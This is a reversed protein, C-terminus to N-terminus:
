EPMRLIFTRDNWTLTVERPQIRSVTWGQVMQGVTLMNNAIMAVPEHNGVLVSQLTLGNAAALAEALGTPPAPEPPEIAEPEKPKTCVAMPPAKFVFPNGTIRELPIQRRQAEYYFADTISLGAAGAPAPAELETLASDVHEQVLIQEASVASPGSRVGMFYLTAFAAAFLAALVLNGTGMKRLTSVQGATRPPPGTRQADGQSELPPLMGDDEIPNLEEAPM